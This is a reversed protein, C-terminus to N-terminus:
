PDAQRQMELEHILLVCCWVQDKIHVRPISSLDEHRRLLGDGWGRLKSGELSLGAKKRERISDMRSRCREEQLEVPSIAGRCQIKMYNGCSASYHECDKAQLVTVRFDAELNFFFFFFFASHRRELLFM